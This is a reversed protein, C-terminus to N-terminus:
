GGEFLSAQKARLCGASLWLRERLRNANNGGTRDVKAGAKRKNGYGGQAKWPVVRWDAPWVFGDEYGCYVIRLRTDTGHEIAWARVRHAISAEGTLKAEATGYIDGDLGAGPDYPPDLLIGTPGNARLVAPTLVRQWDGCCVRVRRLRARLEEFVALLAERPTGDAPAGFGNAHGPNLGNVGRGGMGDVNPLKGGSAVRGAASNIGRLADGRVAPKQDPPGIMTHIGHESQGDCRPRKDHAGTAKGRRKKANVGHEVTLIPIQDKAECRSEDCWGSGIWQSLGWVWWGAVKADYYDPDSRMRERFDTQALLWRHRALLDCESVPFDAHLAVAEPDAQTARWFCSLWPNWDNVTEIRPAHPRALLTALSGAFPEVYNPVDGLAEWILAAARAKGGAWPYPARLEPNAETPPADDTTVRASATEMGAGADVMITTAGPAVDTLVAAVEARATKAWPPEVPGPEVISREAAPAIPPAGGFM